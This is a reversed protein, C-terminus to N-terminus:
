SLRSSRRIARLADDAQDRERREPLIRGSASSFWVGAMALIFGM